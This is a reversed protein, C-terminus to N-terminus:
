TEIYVNQLLKQMKDKVSEPGSIRVKGELAIVWSLFQSSVAVQVRVTFHDDGEPILRVDRGFQDIIVNAMDNTCKLVVTEVEGGYMRFYQENFKARDQKNFETKGKRKEDLVSVNRMKDVRFHRMEKKEHDYGILYYREDDFHLAWPSVHYNAGDRRFEEEGKVNWSFYKFQIAKNEGLATHIADIAYYISENMNKVRGSVKVERDLMQSDYTSVNKELKKILEKTKKESIFKSSQIADVLIKLEAIEFDRNGCHYYTRFGEQERIIEIGFFDLADLDDYVSKRQAEIDYKALEAIIQPMTLAHTDDTQEQMIKALYLLKLKQNKGRM